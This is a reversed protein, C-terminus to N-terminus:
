PLVWLFPIVAVDQCMQQTTALLLACGCASLAIWLALGGLRPRPTAEAALAATAPYVPEIPWTPASRWVLAACGLFAAVYILYAASWIWAQTVAGWLLEFVLPYALLAGLSGLNSLAYLRYPSRDPFTRAFWAQLLPGTAALVLFPLGITFLLLGLISLIPGAEAGPKWADSPTIPSPWLGIRLVLLGVALALASLHITRQRSASRLGALGHAYGYGLLLAVQFFLMCTTWVAPAGGFWPLIQKGLIFQVEFLLFAGVGITAAFLASTGSRPAPDHM